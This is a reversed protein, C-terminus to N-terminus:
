LVKFANQYWPVVDIKERKKEEERRKHIIIAYKTVVLIVVAFTPKRKTSETSVPSDRRVVFTGGVSSGSKNLLRNCLSRWLHDEAFHVLEITEKEGINKMEERECFKFWNCFTAERQRKSSGGCSKGARNIPICVYGANVDCGSVLLNMLVSNKKGSSEDWGSSKPAILRQLLESSHKARKPEDELQLGQAQRKSKQPTSQGSLRM